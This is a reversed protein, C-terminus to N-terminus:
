LIYGSEKLRKKAHEINERSDALLTHYHIGDTLFNLYNIDNNEMEEIFRDVEMRNSINLEVAIKGYCDHDVFVDLVKVGSDVIIYLEDQTRAQGHRVRVIEKFGEEKELLYGRNSSLIEYGMERIFAIDNVIVQRSVDLREGLSSATIPKTEESLIKIIEDRREVLDM